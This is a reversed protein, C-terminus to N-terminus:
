HYQLRGLRLLQAEDLALWRRACFGPGILFVRM